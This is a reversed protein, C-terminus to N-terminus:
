QWAVHALSRASVSSVASSSSPTHSRCSYSPPMSIVPDNNNIPASRESYYPSDLAIFLLRLAVTARRSTPPAIPVIRSSRRGGPLSRSYHGLCVRLRRSLGDQRERWSRVGARGDGDPRGTEKARFLFALCERVERGPSRFRQSAVVCTIEPVTNKKLSRVSISSDSM